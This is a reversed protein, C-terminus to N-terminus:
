RRAKPKAVYVVNAAKIVDLLARMKFPNGKFGITGDAVAKSASIEHRLLRDLDDGSLQLVIEPRAGPTGCSLRPPRVKGDITFEAAPAITIFRVTLRDKIMTAFAEPSRATVEALVTAMVAYLAQASEFAAM